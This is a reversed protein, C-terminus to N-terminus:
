NKIGAAEGRTNMEKINYRKKFKYLWGNTADFDEIKLQEAFNKAKMKIMDETLILNSNIAIKIWQRLKEDLANYKKPRIRCSTENHNFYNLLIKEKNKLIDCICRRSVSM